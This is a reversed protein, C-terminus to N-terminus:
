SWRLKFMIAEWRSVFEYHYGAGSSSYTFWSDDSYFHGECWDMLAEEPGWENQESPFLTEGISAMREHSIVVKHTM